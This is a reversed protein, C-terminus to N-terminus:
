KEKLVISLVEEASLPQKFLKVRNIYGHYIRESPFEENRGLTWKNGVSLYSSEDMVTTGALKGDLYVYLTKGACIGAIHHWHQYWDAPLNVTCDGRGWGGAFFTLTKGDVVQLVNTDGQTFIDTLGNEKGIPYVWAMMTLTEGTIKLSAADPMELFCNEGFLLKGTSTEVHDADVPMIHGNNNFGSKDEILNNRVSEVIPLDLLLSETNYQYVKYVFSANGVMIQQFGNQHRLFDHKITKREGPNLSLPDTFIVSGNVTVPINFVRKLGGTNQVMYSIQQQENRKIVPKATLVTIRYPRAIPTKPNVVKVIIQASGEITLISNGFPYLRCLISDDLLQGSSVFSNKHAYRKGNVMLYVTKVGVSGQNKISYRIYFPQDPNVTHLSSSCNSIKFVAPVKTESLEAPNRNEPWKGPKSGLDFDIKGGSQLLSHSLTLQQFDKGNVTLSKLFAEKISSNKTSIMLKKGNPLHLTVSQFLPSGVAYLPKGPCVPYLGLSSFVYWSSTSGLDDNGPLGGPSNSFRELMMKRCWKQALNPKGAENFLYPLHFVTENDFLIVNNALASDLHNAFQREGGMLNILDKGNQPVFYSYVWKDGEKYGVNGPNLKFERQNRPLFFLEDANFLNRYNYSRNLLQRYGKEDKAASKAFQAMAWDDYAYEVTRTVSEPKTFPIYGNRQYIEMDPQIFPPEVLSKKMAKYALAKDFGRIGKLYSDTIIAVAHNGTMTEVPLHGSQKYIDLMSLIVDSQKQPYLLTLLPHLSRFTDWPSFGGYQNKGIKQHTKGDLGKYRGDADDVVWPMLLSHYLATYFIIKNNENPDAIDAIALKEAWIKKTKEKIQDFNQNGIEQDINLQASKFSVTSASMKLTVKKVDPSASFSFIWGGKVQKKDVYPEDFNIVTNGNSARVIQKTLTSLEGVDGM